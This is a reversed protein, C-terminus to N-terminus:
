RIEYFAKSAHCFYQLQIPLLKCRWLLCKRQSYCYIKVVRYMIVVECYVCDTKMGLVLHDTNNLVSNGFQAGRFSLSERRTEAPIKPYM